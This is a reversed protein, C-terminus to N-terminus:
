PESRRQLQANPCEDVKGWLPDRALPMGCYKWRVKQMCVQRSLFSKAQCAQLAARLAAVREAVSAPPSAAAQAHAQEAAARQKAKQKGNQEAKREAERKAKEKAVLEAKRQEREHQARLRQAHLREARARQAAAVSAQPAPHELASPPAKAAAPASVAAPGPRTEPAPRAMSAAVRPSVMPAVAARQRGWYWGGAAAVALLLLAGATISAAKRIGASQTTRPEGAADHAAPSTGPRLPMEAGCAHCFRADDQNQTGCKTCYAM